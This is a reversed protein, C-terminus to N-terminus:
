AQTQPPGRSRPTPVEAAAVRHSPDPPTLYPASPSIQITATGVAPHAVQAFAQCTPCLSDDPLQQDQRLESSLAHASYYVHTLEHLLAGQQAFLVLLPLALALRFRRM